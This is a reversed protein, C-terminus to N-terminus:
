SSNRRKKVKSIIDTINQTISSVEKDDSKSLIFNSITSYFFRDYNKIYTNFELLWKKFDFNSAILGKCLQEQAERLRQVYSDKNEKKPQAQDLIESNVDPM